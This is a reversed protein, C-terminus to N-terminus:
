KPRLLVRDRFYTRDDVNLTLRAVREKSDRDVTFLFDSEISQYLLEEKKNVLFDRIAALLITTTALRQQGDVVEPIDRSM